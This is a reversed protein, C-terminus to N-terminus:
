LSSLTITQAALEHLLPEKDYELRKYFGTCTDNNIDVRFAIKHLYGFM